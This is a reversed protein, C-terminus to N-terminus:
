DEFFKLKQTEPESSANLAPKIADFQSITTHIYNLPLNGGLLPAAQYTADPYGNTACLKSNTRDTAM